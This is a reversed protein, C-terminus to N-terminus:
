CRMFPLSVCPFFPLSFNIFSRQRVPLEAHRLALYLTHKGNMLTGHNDGPPTFGSWQGADRMLKERALVNPGGWIEASETHFIAV